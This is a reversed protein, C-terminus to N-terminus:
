RVRKKKQKRKRPRKKTSNKTRTGLEIYIDDLKVDRMYANVALQFLLDGFEKIVRNKGEAAVALAAEGGEEDLKKAVQVEGKALLEKVRSPKKGKASRRVRAFLQAITIRRKPM